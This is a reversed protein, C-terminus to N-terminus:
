DSSPAQTDTVQQGMHWHARRQSAQSIFERLGERDESALLGQIKLLSTEFWKAQAIM